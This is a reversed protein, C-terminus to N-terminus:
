TIKTKRFPQEAIIIAILLVERLLGGEASKRENGYPLPVTGTLSFAETLTSKWRFCALGAIESKGKRRYYLDGSFSVRVIARVIVYNHADEQCNLRVNMESPLSLDTKQMHRM